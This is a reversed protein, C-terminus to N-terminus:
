EARVKVPRKHPPVSVEYAALIGQLLPNLSGLREPLWTQADKLAQLQEATISDVPTTICEKVNDAQKRKSM